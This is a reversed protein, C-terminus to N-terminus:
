AVGVQVAQNAFHSKMRLNRLQEYGDAIRKGLPQSIPKSQSELQNIRKLKHEPNNLFRDFKEKDQRNEIKVRGSRQQKLQEQFKAIAKKKDEDPISSSHSDLKRAKKEEQYKHYYVEWRNQGAKTKSALWAELDNVPQSFNQIAKKVFKFFNESEGESLTKKFDIYTKSIKPTQFRIELKTEPSPPSVPSALTVHTDDLRDQPREFSGPTASVIETDDSSGPTVVESKDKIQPCHANESVSKSKMQYKFKNIVLEILNEKQLKVLARQVTRRSIGLDKAIEHTNAEILKGGFPDNTKLWLYVSLESQTLIQNLKLFEQHQLPYFKGSIKKTSMVSHLINIYPIQAEQFSKLPM